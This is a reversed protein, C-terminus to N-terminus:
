ILLLLVLSIAGLIFSAVSEFIKGKKSYIGTAIYYNITLFILYAKLFIYVFDM